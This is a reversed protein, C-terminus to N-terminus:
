SSINGQYKGPKTAIVVLRWILKDGDALKTSHESFAPVFRDGSSKDKGDAGIVYYQWVTIPVAGNQPSFDSDGLVYLGKPRHQGSKTIADEIWNVSITNVSKSLTKPSLSERNFFLNFGKDSNNRDNLFRLFDAVNTTAEPVEFTKRVFLGVIELSIKKM